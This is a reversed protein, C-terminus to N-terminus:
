KRAKTSKNRRRKSRTDDDSDGEDRDRLFGHSAEAANSSSGSSAKSQVSVDDVKFAEIKGDKSAMVLHQTGKMTVVQACTVSAGDDKIVFFQLSRGTELGNALYIHRRGDYGVAVVDGWAAVVWVNSDKQMPKMDIESLQIRYENVGSKVVRMKYAYFSQDTDTGAFFYGFRSFAVVCRTGGYVVRRVESSVFSGSTEQYVALIDVYSECGLFVLGHDRWIRMSYITEGLEIVLLTEDPRTVDWLHVKHDRAASMVLTESFFSGVMVAADHRTYVKHDVVVVDKDPMCQLVQVSVTRDDSSTVMMLQQEAGPLQMVNLCNVYDDHDVITPSHVQEFRTRLFRYVMIQGRRNAAFVYPEDNWTTGNIYTIWSHADGTTSAMPRTMVHLRPDIKHFTQKGANRRAHARGITTGIIRFPLQGMLQNSCKVQLLAVFQTFDIGQRRFTSMEKGLTKEDLFNRWLRVDVKADQIAVNFNKGVDTLETQLVSQGTVTRVTVVISVDEAKANPASFHCHIEPILTGNRNDGVLNIACSAQDNPVHVTPDKAPRGRRAGPPPFTWDGSRAVVFGGYDPNLDMTSVLSSVPAGEDTALEVSPVMTGDEAMSLKEFNVLASPLPAGNNGVLSDSSGGMTSALSASSGTARAAASPGARIIPVATQPTGHISPDFSPVYGEARVVAAVSRRAAEAASEPVPSHTPLIHGLELPEQRSNSRPAARRREQRERDRATPGRTRAKAKAKRQKESGTLEMEGPLIIPSKQPGKPLETALTPPTTGARMVPPSNNYIAEEDSVTRGDRTMMVRPPIAGLGAGSPVTAMNNANLDMQQGVSSMYPVQATMYQAQNAFSDDLSLDVSMSPMLDDGQMASLGSVQSTGAASAAFEMQQGFDGAEAAHMPTLASSTSPTMSPESVSPTLSSESISYSGDTTPSANDASPFTTFMPNEDADKVAVDLSIQAKHEEEAM